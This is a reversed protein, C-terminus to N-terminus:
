AGPNAGEPRQEAQEVPKSVQIDAVVVNTLPRNAPGWRGHKDTEVAAIADLVELGRTIRGFVSHKGDLHPAAGHILFFQSSGSNRSGTNAMSLVGRIHPADTFEDQINWGPGGNGDNAPDEDKTNPDGGQIIFDPIVRHFTTGAYFGKNALKTFNKVTSPALSPYLEIEIEGRGEIELVAIPHPGEPWVYAAPDTKALPEQEPAPEGCALVFGLAAVLMLSPMIRDLM